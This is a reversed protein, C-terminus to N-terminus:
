RPRSGRRSSPTLFPDDFSRLASHTHLDIFGPCLMLGRADLSRAHAVRDRDADSTTVLEITSGRVGVDGVFPPADGPYVTARHLLLDLM